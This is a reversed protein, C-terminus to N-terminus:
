LESRQQKANRNAHPFWGLLGRRQKHATVTSAPSKLCKIIKRLTYKSQAHGNVQQAVTNSAGAGGQVRRRTDCPTCDRKLETSCEAGLHGWRRESGELRRNPSWNLRFCASIRICEAILDQVDSDRIM